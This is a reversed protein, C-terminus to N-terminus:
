EGRFSKDNKLKYDMTEIDISNVKIKDDKITRFLESYVFSEPSKKGVSVFAEVMEKSHTNAIIQVNMDKTLEYLIEWVLKHKTYHFGNEIEDILVVGGQNSIVYLIFSLLRSIGDGLLNLPIRKGFGVNGYLLTENESVPVPTISELRPEFKNLYKLVTTESGEKLLEGYMVAEQKTNVTRISSFQSRRLNNLNTYKNTNVKRNIGESSLYLNLDLIVSDNKRKKLHLSTGLTKASTGANTAMKSLDLNLDENAYNTDISFEVFEDFVKHEEKFSAWLKITKHIDYKHFHPAWIEELKQNNITLSNIGRWAYQRFLIDPSLVDHFSFIGELLSTKGINNDGGILNIKSLRPIIIKDFGKYNYIRFATIM